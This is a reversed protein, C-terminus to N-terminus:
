ITEARQRLFQNLNNLDGTLAPTDPYWSAPALEGTNEHHQHADALRIIEDINRGIHFDSMSQHRVAGLKDIIFTARLSISQNVLVGYAEAVRRSADSLVPFPLKGTGGETVPTQMWRQLAIHQDCSIVCLKMKRKEFEAYRNRLALLETPCIYSFAMSYFFLVSMGGQSHGWYDFDTKLNGDPMIAVTTFNPAHQGILNKM